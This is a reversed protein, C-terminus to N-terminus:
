TMSIKLLNDNLFLIEGSSDCKSNFLFSRSFLFFSLVCAGLILCAHLQIFVSINFVHGSGRGQFIVVTQNGDGNSITKMKGDMKIVGFALISSLVNKLTPDYGILKTGFGDEMLTIVLRQLLIKITQYSKHYFVSIFFLNLNFSAQLTLSFFSVFSFYFLPSHM